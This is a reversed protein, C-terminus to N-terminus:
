GIKIWCFFLVPLFSTKILSEVEKGQEASSNLSQLLYAKSDLSPKEASSLCALVLVGLSTFVSM